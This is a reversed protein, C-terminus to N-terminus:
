TIRLSQLFASNLVMPQCVSRWLDFSFSFLIAESRFLVFFANSSYRLIVRQTMQEKLMNLLRYDIDSSFSSATPM